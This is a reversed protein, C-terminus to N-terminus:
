IHPLNQMYDKSCLLELKENLPANRLDKTVTM